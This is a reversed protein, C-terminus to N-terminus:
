EPLRLRWTPKSADRFSLHLYPYRGAITVQIPGIKIFNASFLRVAGLRRHAKMSGPAFASIRSFCWQVGTAALHRNAALWLRSFTRGMRYEPAIYLDYDWASLHPAELVYRCRVEDEDYHDRALWLYGAFCGKSRACLCAHGLEFRHRIVSAPRPVCALIPDGRKCFDVDSRPTHPIPAAEVSAVPQAVLHYRFLQIKGRSLTALVRAVLYISGDLKGQQRLTERVRPVVQSLPPFPAM